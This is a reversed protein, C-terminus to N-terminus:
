FTLGFPALRDVPPAASILAFRWFIMSMYAFYARSVRATQGVFGSTQNRSPSKMWYVSAVWDLGSVIASSPWSAASMVQAILVLMGFATTAIFWLVQFEFSSVLLKQHSIFRASRSMTHVVPTPLLPLKM